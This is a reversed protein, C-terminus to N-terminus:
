NKEKLYEICQKGAVALALFAVVVIASILTIGLLM